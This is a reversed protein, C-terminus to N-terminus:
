IEGADIEQYSAARGRLVEVLDELVAIFLVSTGWAMGIRPIWLPTAFYTTALDNFQYSTWVFMVSSFALFACLLTLAGLCLVEAAYRHRANRVRKLVVNVRIHVGERFAYPLALFACGTLAYVAFDDVGPALFGLARAFIQLTVLVLILVLCVGALIASALYVLKLAARLSSPRHDTHM